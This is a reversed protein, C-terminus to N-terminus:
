SRIDEFAHLADREANLNKIDQLDDNDDLEAAVLALAEKLSGRSAVLRDAAWEMPSDMKLMKSMNPTHWYTHFAETKQYETGGTKVTKRDMPFGVDM